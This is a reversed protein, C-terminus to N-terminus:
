TAVGGTYYGVVHITDDREFEVPVSRDVRYRASPLSVASRRAACYHAATLSQYHRVAVWEGGPTPQVMVRFVYRRKV